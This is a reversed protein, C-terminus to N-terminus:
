PTGAKAKLWARLNILEGATLQRDIFGLALVIGPRFNSGNGFGMMEFAGTPGTAAGPDTATTIVSDSDKWLNVPGGSLDADGVLSTQHPTAPASVAATVVATNGRARSGFASAQFGFSPISGRNVAVPTGVNSTCQHAMWWTFIGTTGVPFVGSFCVFFDDVGDFLLGNKGNPTAAWTPAFNTTGQRGYNGNAAVMPKVSMVTQGLATVPTALADAQYLKSMDTFDYCVGQETTYLSAPSFTGGVNRRKRRRTVQSNDEM